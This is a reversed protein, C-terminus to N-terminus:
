WGSCVNNATDELDNNVCLTGEGTSSTESVDAVHLNKM